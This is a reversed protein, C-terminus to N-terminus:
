RRQTEPRRIWVDNSRSFGYREYLRQASARNGTGILVIQTDKFRDLVADALRRGIGLGQVDPEVALDCLVSYLVGDSLVRAIGVLRGEYWASFVLSAEEFMRWVKQPDSVPHNLPARRYLTIIRAATLDAIGERIEIDTIENTITPM